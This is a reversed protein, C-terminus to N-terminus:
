FRGGVGVSGMGIQVSLGARERTDKPQEKPKAFFWVAAGAGIGVGGVLIGALAANGLTHTAALQEESGGPCIGNRCASKLESANQLALGGTVGFLGMGLLGVGLGATAGMTRGTWFGPPEPVRQLSFGIERQKRQELSVVQKEVYYGKARVELAHEGLALRGDFPAPGVDHGDIWLRAGPTNSEIRLSADKDEARLEVVQTEFLGVNVVKEESEMRAGKDAVLESPECMLLANPQMYGLLRIRHEGPKVIKPLPTVGANQGDIEVQLVWGHKERIDLKAQREKAVLKAVFAQGATVDASVVIPAFGTKEARVEHVGGLVRIPAQLPLEGVDRADIFLRSGQIVDGEVAITGVKSLLTDREDTAQKRRAAPAQPFEALATEYHLLAEDFRKLENLASALQAMAGFKREIALSKQLFEVARSFDKKQFFAAGKERLLKAEALDEASLSSPEDAAHATVPVLWLAAVLLGLQRTRTLTSNRQSRRLM